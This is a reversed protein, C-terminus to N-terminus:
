VIFIFTSCVHVWLCTHMPTSLFFPAAQGLLRYASSDKNGDLRYWRRDSWEWRGQLARRILQARWDQSLKIYSSTREVALNWILSVKRVVTLGVSDWDLAWTLHLLESASRASQRRHFQNWNNRWSLLLLNFIMNYIWLDYHMFYNGTM